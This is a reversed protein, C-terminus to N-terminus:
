ASAKKTDISPEVSTGPRLQGVLPDHPDITIKVPVRQVIKTFNGTANDPPLLAFEEGSAPAVSNVVGHVVAGPFTDVSIAVPQGPRVDTLQTEKYNAVIYVAQLPVVAMLQTAAQVYQGVRLSREGVVGNIPSTIITYGLNLQAQRLAAQALAVEARAKVLQAHLVAVQTRAVGVAAMDRQLNAQQNQASTGSQQAEQITGAGSHALTAYRGYDQRAFALSAQDSAVAAQAEAIAYQQQAMQQVLEDVGAAAADANAQASALTARYDRDDIRALLQGSAVQENDQVPVAAIYGAVEPSITVSDAQLYADDTSVMFRGSTWWGHGYFGAAVLLALGGLAFLAPRIRRKRRRALVQSADEVRLSVRRDVESVVDQDM